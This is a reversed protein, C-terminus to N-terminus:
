YKMAASEFVDQSKTVAPTDQLRRQRKNQGILEGMERNALRVSGGELRKMTLPFRLYAGDSRYTM